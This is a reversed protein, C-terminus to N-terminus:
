KQKLRLETVGPLQTTDLRSFNEMGTLAGKLIWLYNRLAKQKIGLSIHTYNRACWHLFRPLSEM